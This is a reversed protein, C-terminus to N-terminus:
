ISFPLCPLFFEFHWLGFFIMRHSPDFLAKTLFFDILVRLASDEPLTFYYNEFVTLREELTEHQTFGQQRVIGYDVHGGAGGERCWWQGATADWERM